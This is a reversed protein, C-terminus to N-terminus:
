GVRPSGGFSSGRDRPTRVSPTIRALADVESGDMVRKCGELFPDAWGALAGFVDPPQIRAPRRTPVDLLPRAHGVVRRRREVESDDFITQSGCHPCPAAAARPRGCGDCAVLVFPITLDYSQM